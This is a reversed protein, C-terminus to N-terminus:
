ASSPMRSRTRDRPSPSTYLLCITDEPFNGVKVNSPRVFAGYKPACEFYKQGDVSGNNKGLPEDYKVGVWYGEKFQTKGVFMVVGRKATAKPISVECRSGISISQALEEEEKERRKVEEPDKEAFRGLKMKEKFARVSEGRKAYEEESM